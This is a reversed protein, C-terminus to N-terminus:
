LANIDSIVKDIKGESVVEVDFRVIATKLEAIAEADTPKSISQVVTFIDQPTPQEEIQYNFNGNIIRKTVRYDAAM